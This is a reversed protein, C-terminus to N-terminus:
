DTHCVTRTSPFKSLYALDAQYVIVEAHLIIKYFILDAALLSCALFHLLKGLIVTNEISNSHVGFSLIVERFEQM